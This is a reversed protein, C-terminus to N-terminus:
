TWTRFIEFLGISLTHIVPLAIPSVIPAQFGSRQRGWYNRRIPIYAITKLDYFAYSYDFFDNSTKVTTQVGNHSSVFKSSTSGCGNLWSAALILMLTMFVLHRIHSQFRTEEDMM